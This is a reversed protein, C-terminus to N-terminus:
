ALVLGPADTFVGDAALLPLGLHVAAAGIWLDHHHTPQALPHGASRCDFRFQAVTSLLEDSVKVVTTAAIAQELRGVRVAGWGAVLAGYRLEAVTQSALYLQNGPASGGGARLAASAQPQPRRQLDGHRGPAERPCRTSSGSTSM